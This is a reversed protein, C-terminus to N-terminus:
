DSEFVSDPIDRMLERKIKRLGVLLNELEELEFNKSIYNSWKAQVKALKLHVSQGKETLLFIPSREHDPNDEFKALGEDVLLNAIRQVSHRTLSMRRAIQSVTLRNGFSAGMVKWRATTQQARNAIREGPIRLTGELLLLEHIIETFCSSRPHRSKPNPTVLEKPSM